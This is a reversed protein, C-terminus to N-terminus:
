MRILILLQKQYLFRLIQLFIKIVLNNVGAVTATPNIKDLKGVIDAKLNVQGNISNDKLLAAQGAAVVLERLNLNQAILHLDAKAEESITGYFKLPQNLISFGINKININNNDLAVDANINDINVDYLGYRLKAFPINM